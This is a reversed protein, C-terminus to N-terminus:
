FHVGGLDLLSSDEHLVESSGYTCGVAQRGSCINGDRTLGTPGCEILRALTAVRGAWLRDGQAAYRRGM